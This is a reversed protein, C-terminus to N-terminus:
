KSKRSFGVILAGLLLAGGVLYPWWPAPQYPAGAGGPVAPLYTTTQGGQSAPQPVPNRHVFVATTRGPVTFTHTAPDFAAQRAIPDPGAALLPHLSLGDMASDAPLTFAAEGPSANFVVFIRDYQPDLRAQPDDTLQMVILGPIQQPGTNLFRVRQIVQEATRLRFLPSSRRIQLATEFHALAFQMDDPTPKLAPNALLAAMLDWNSGNKDKPPRGHGWNNDQYTWDLANFWDGSDYSDRDLSKSRLIESGAHFFPVGQAYAVLDLALNQMRVRAQMPLDLPAKYQIADFLTENDHASVYVVNEQPDQAYGAPQGNYNIQAGTVPNGEANILPYDALNGALSVRIQDQLDLLLAKQSNEPLDSAENPATYLGTVFGQIHPPQFPNGGRAADRLRDNFTGIGTGAMNAQTANVGRANNAVEGFDWGEGYLYPAEVGVRVGTGDGVPLPPSSLAAQVALMDAKMHHGMLDFRFGDVHYARNWLLASDRMLKGMMAHETATNACCTSSAINGNADLRHYYGPVIKDLVSKESLGSANTHNYVVDMVVRLGMQHLAAVMQRFELIRAAGEPNTSYSGEPANYHYPDYGWNYGDAGRTQAIFDQQQESDPPLASLAAFDTPPWTSKDENITAIDFAPLLHIHTVGAAALRRLHRVGYSDPLTFALYTGRLEPPVSPDRASFDRIHLEYLVIDEPPLPPLADAQWNAPQLAPDDLDAILSWTSNTSLALAYPDTVQSTVVKGEQQVFVSVEYRYYMGKWSPEGTISWIGTVPDLTMERVGQEGRGPPSPSPTLPEGRGSPSPSPTPSLLLRVRKATPAWVRLTPTDGHWVIGLPEDNAYLDDLVGPIQLGTAGLVQGNPATVQIAIQGKLIEPVQPLAEDPVKLLVATSLHTWKEALDKPLNDDVFELTIQQGGKLGQQTVEIGGEPAHFLTFVAKKGYPVPWAIYQRTLWHAQAKNKIDGVGAVLLAQQATEPDPFQEGSGQILYIERGVDNFNMSQDPGPDKEDGRHVIYNLHDADANVEVVWYIGYADQGAPLLPSGWTVVGELPTPGWVHLGFGDYDEATRRYHIVVHTDDPPPAPQLSVAVAALADEASPHQDARGQTLYIECGAEAFTLTQDPGPDKTDGKHIIYNVSEANENLPIVWAIGFDDQGSPALPNQWTVQSELPTAGWVHLGWGDYDANRRHYHIVAQQCTTQAVAPAPLVALSLILATLILLNLTKLAKM